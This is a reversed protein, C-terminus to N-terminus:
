ERDYTILDLMNSDAIVLAGAGCLYAMDAISM